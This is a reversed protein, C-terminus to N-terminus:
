PMMRALRQEFFWIAVQVYPEARAAMRRNEIERELRRRRVPRRQRRQMRWWHTVGSLVGKRGGKITTLNLNLVQNLDRDVHPDDSVIAGDSRYSIRTTIQDHHEPDAPNWHLDREGKKTDCHQISAPQGEGGLCAALLNAYRLQEDSHATRNRWHEIKTKFRDNRIRCMCYCCISRQEEVLASRLEDKERYNDFDAHATQRHRALSRPENEKVIPRM